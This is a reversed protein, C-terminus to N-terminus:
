KKVDRSNRLNLVCIKKLITKAHVCVYLFFKLNANAWM